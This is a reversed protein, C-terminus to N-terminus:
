AKKDSNFDIKRRPKTVRILLYAVPIGTLSRNAILGCTTQSAGSTLICYAGLGAPLFLESYPRRTFSFLSHSRPWLNRLLHAM